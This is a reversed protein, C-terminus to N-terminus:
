PHHAGALTGLGQMLVEREVPSLRASPHGLLYLVPPMSSEDFVEQFEDVHQEAPRKWDSFNIHKRGETVDRHVLWSLPAISSYWPWKTENSHCDFCARRALAATAPTDWRPEANAPPNAHEPGYPIFQILIGMVALGILM